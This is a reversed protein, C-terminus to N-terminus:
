RWVDSATALSDIEHESAHEIIWRIRELTDLALPQAFKIGCKQARVWNVTGLMEVEALRLLATAGVRPPEALALRCGLRSLNEITCATTREPLVLGAELGASLRAMARNGLKGFTRQIGMSWLYCPATFLIKDRRHHVSLLVTKSLAILSKPPPPSAEQGRENLSSSRSKAGYANLRLPSPSGLALRGIAAFPM